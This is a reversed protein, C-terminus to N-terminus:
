APIKGKSVSSFGIADKHKSTHLFGHGSSRGFLEGHFGVLNHQISDAPCNTISM